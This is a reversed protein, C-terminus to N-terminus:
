TVADPVCSRLVGLLTEGSRLLGNDRSRGRELVPAVSLVLGCDTKEIRNVHKVAKNRMRKM